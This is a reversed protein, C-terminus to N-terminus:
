KKACMDLIPKLYGKEITFHYNTNESSTYANSSGAHQSLFHSYINEEPYKETGLFLMHELFLHTTIWSIYEGCFHALGDYGQPDSFSGVAVDM